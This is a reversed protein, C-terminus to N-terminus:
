YDDNDFYDDDFSDEDEEEENDDEYNCPCDCPHVEDEVVMEGQCRVHKGGNCHVCIM